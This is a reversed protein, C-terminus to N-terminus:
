GWASVAGSSSAGCHRRTTAGRTGASGFSSAIHISRCPRPPHSAREPFAGARLWRDLTGRSLGTHAIIESVTRGLRRLAVVEEYRTLRVARREAKLRERYERQVPRAAARRAEKTHARARQAARLAAAERGVIPQVATTLNCLLHFRDAVQLADPTEFACARLNAAVSRRASSSARAPSEVSGSRGLFGPPHITAVAEPLCESV